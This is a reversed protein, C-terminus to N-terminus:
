NKGEGEGGGTEDEEEEDDDDEADEWAIDLGEDTGAAETDPPGMGLEHHGSGGFGGGGGGGGGLPAQLSALQYVSSAGHVGSKSLFDPVLSDVKMRKTRDISGDSMGAALTSSSVVVSNDTEELSVGISEKQVVTDSILFRNKKSLVPRGLNELIAQKSEEDRVESARFGKSMNESPLNRKLPADKLERLLDFIGEHEDTAQLVQLLRTKLSKANKVKIDVDLPVLRYFTEAFLERFNEYPCCAACVFKYDKSKCRQADLSTVEVSCTPCKYKTENIEENQAANVTKDMLYVRFRVVDVFTQYDIYYCKSQRLDEMLISECKVLMEEELKTVIKRVEKEPLRLRPGLEEERIYKERLLADLVVVVGDTYFARSVTRVLREVILNAQGLSLPAFSSM